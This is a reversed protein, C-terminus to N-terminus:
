AFGPAGRVFVRSSAAERDLGVDLIANANCWDNLRAPIVLGLLVPDLTRWAAQRM